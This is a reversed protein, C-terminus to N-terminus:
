FDRVKLRREKAERALMAWCAYNRLEPSGLVQQAADNTVNVDNSSDM